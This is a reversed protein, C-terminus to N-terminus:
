DYDSDEGYDNFQRKIITSKRNNFAFEDYDNSGNDDDDDDDNNEDYITTDKKM